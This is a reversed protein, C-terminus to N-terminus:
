GPRGCPRVAVCWSSTLASRNFNRLDTCFPRLAAQTGDRPPAIQAQACCAASRLKRSKKRKGGVFSFRLWNTSGAHPACPHIFSIAIEPLFYGPPKEPSVDHPCVIVSVAPLAIEFRVGNPRDPRATAHRRTASPAPKTEATASRFGCRRNPILICM